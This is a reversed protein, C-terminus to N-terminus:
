DITVNDAGNLRILAGIVNATLNLMSSVTDHPVITVSFGSGGFESWQNLGVAGTESIDSVIKATVNGTVTKSNLDEFLGGVGTLSPYDGGLGVTYTGTLAPSITYSRLTGGIPFATTTLDVSSPTVAFSGAQIGVNVSPALDQAVVFYQIIDSVALSSPSTLLQHNITFSYPSTGTGNAVVYKWGNGLSDNSAALANNDTSRKFYLRPRNVSDVDSGDTIVVNELMRSTVIPSNGLQTYSIAPATLDLGILDAEYAGVDPATGNGSYASEGYRTSGFFDTNVNSPSSVVVGGSEAQTAISSSIRLDKPTSVVDIFPPLSSYSSAESGIRTKFASITQDGSLLTSEYFVLNNAGATGAYYDNNNSALSHNAYSGSAARWYAVSKANTGVGGPTSANVFINNKFDLNGPSSSAYVAASGFSSSSSSANLYVTNYYLGINQGGNCFLGVVGPASSSTTVKLDSIFNNYAYINSSSSGQLYAGYTVNSTTGINSIFNRHFRNTDATGLYAGYVAGGTSTFNSVTDNFSNIVAGNTAGNLYLGYLSTAGPSVVNEIKNSYISQSSSSAGGSSFMGYFTGGSGSVFSTNTVQNRYLSLNSLSGLRYIGYMSSSSTTQYINSDLVNDYISHNLGSVSTYLMIMQGTSSRFRNKRFTNNYVETQSSSSSVYLGYTTGTSTTSQNRLNNNIQNDYVKWQNNSSTGGQAYIYYITGTATSTGNGYTNNSVSNGYLNLNYCSATHFIKYAVSTSPVTWTWNNVNNNYINVTNNTGSGGAANYIGYTTSGALTRNITVSNNYIDVNSNNATTTFIGYLISSATPKNTIVTNAIKINLQYITYVGYSTTNAAFNTISVPGDVGIEHDTDMYPTISTNNYLYIGNAANAISCNFVKLNKHGGADNSPTTSTGASNLSTSRIGVTYLIAPNNNFTLSCNKITVNQCGDTSSARCLMFGVETILTTTTGTYVEQMDIGDFTIFDTGNLKIFADANSTTVSTAAFSGSGGVVSNLRPNAGVGSKQFIIPNASTPKNVGTINIIIGGTPINETHGAAINFTVGGSGVGSTNLASVAANITAYDPSSGGVTKTGTLQAQTNNRFFLLCIFLLLYNSGHNLKFTIKM